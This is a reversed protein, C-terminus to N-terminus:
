APRRPEVSGYVCAEAPLALPLHSVVSMRRGGALTGNKSRTRADEREWGIPSPQPSPDKVKM